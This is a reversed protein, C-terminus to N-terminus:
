TFTVKVFPVSSHGAGGPDLLSGSERQILMWSPSSSSAAISVHTRWAASRGPHRPNSLNHIEVRCPERSPTLPHNPRKIVPPEHKPASQPPHCSLKGACPASRTCGLPARHSGKARPGPGAPPSRPSPTTAAPPLRRTQASHPNPRIDIQLDCDLCHDPRHEHPM